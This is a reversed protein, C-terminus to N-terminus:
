CSQPHCPRSFKRDAVAKQLESVRSALVDALCGEVDTRAHPNAPTQYNCDDRFKLWTKQDARLQGADEADLLGLAQAYLDAIRRDFAALQPKRCIEHEVPTAARRCDFSPGAAAAFAAAPALSLALLLLAYRSRRM